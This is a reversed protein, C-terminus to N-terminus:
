AYPPLLNLLCTPVNLINSSTSDMAIYTRYPNITVPSSEWSVIDNGGIDRYDSFCSPCLQNITTNGTNSFALVETASNNKILVSVRRISLGDIEYDVNSNSTELSFQADNANTTVNLYFSFVRGSASAYTEAIRDSYVTNMDGAKHFFGRLNINGSSSKAYGTVLYNQGGTLTFIANNTIWIRDAPGAVPLITASPSGNYNGM